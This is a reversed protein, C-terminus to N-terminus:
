LLQMLIKLPATAPFRALFAATLFPMLPGLEVALANMKVLLPASLDGLVGGGLLKAAENHLELARRQRWNKEAQDVSMRSKTQKIVVIGGLRHSVIYRAPTFFFNAKEPLMFTAGSPLEDNLAAVFAAGPGTAFDGAPDVFYGGGEGKEGDAAYLCGRMLLRGSRGTVTDRKVEVCLDLPLLSDTVSNPVRSGQVDLEKTVFRNDEIQLTEEAMSVMHARMFQVANSTILREAAVIADIDERLQTSDITYNTLIFYSNSFQSRGNRGGLSKHITIKNLMLNTGQELLDFLQTIFPESPYSEAL